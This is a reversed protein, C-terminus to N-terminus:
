HCSTETVALEEIRFNEAGYKRIAAYLSTKAGKFFEHKHHRWRARIGSSAIGVFGKGNIECIIRYCSSTDHKKKHGPTTDGYCLLLISVWLSESMKVLCSAMGNLFETKNPEDNPM